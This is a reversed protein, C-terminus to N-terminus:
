KTRETSDKILQSMFSSLKFENLDDSKVWQYEQHEESLKIPQTPDFMTCLFIIEVRQIEENERSMYYTGTTLPYLAEITIGCEEMIERKVGEQPTEGYDTGGGPLEWCGPMFTDHVSRKVLLVEKQQNLIFAGVSIQQKQQM